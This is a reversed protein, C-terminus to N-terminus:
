SNTKRKRRGVQQLGTPRLILNVAEAMNQGAGRGKLYEVVDNRTPATQQNDPDYTAWLERIADEVYELGESKHGYTLLVTEESNIVSSEADIIVSQNSPKIEKDSISRSPRVYDVKENKVWEQLSYRTIITGDMSINNSRDMMEAPTLRRMDGWDYAVCLVPTLVGRRIATVMGYAFGYAMRWREHKEEKVMELTPYDLPDIGSLLLAAQTITFEQVTFWHSLDPFDNVVPM